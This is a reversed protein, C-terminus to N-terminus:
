HGFRRAPLCSLRKDVLPGLRLEGLARRAVFMEDVEAMEEVLRRGGFGVGGARVVAKLLMHFDDTGRGLAGLAVVTENVDPFAAAECPLVLALVLVLCQICCIA